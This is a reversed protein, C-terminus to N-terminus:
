DASEVTHAPTAAVAPVPLTRRREGGIVRAVPPIQRLAESATWSLILTGAFVIAGKAFGPLAAGLLAYQLWVVFVYHVLYMGFANAKLRDLIRAPRAAFRLGFALAFFCSSFCALSFSLDDAIRLGFPTATGLDRVLATLGIWLAFSLLAGALWSKWCRALPGDLALLGREIGCAGIAAGAFFYVAYHAPRSL